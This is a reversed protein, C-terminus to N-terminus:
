AKGGRAKRCFRVYRTLLRVDRAIGSALPPVVLMFLGGAVFTCLRASLESM